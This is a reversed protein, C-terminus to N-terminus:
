LKIRSNDMHIIFQCGHRYQIFYESIDADLIVPKLYVSVHYPEILFYIM